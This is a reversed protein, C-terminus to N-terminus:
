VKVLCQMNVLLEEMLSVASTKLHAHREQTWQAKIGRQLVRATILDGAQVLPEAIAVSDKHRVSPLTVLNVIGLGGHRTPPGLLKRVQVSSM